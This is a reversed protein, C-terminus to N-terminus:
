AAIKGGTSVGGVPGDVVEIRHAEGEPSTVDYKGPDLYFGPSSIKFVEAKGDPHPMRKVSIDITQDDAAKLTWDPEFTM